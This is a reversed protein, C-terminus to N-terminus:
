RSPPTAGSSLTPTPDLTAAIQRGSWGACRLLAIVFEAPTMLALIEACTDLRIMGALLTNNTSPPPPRSAHNSM